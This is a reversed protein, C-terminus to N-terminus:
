IIDIKFQTFEYEVPHNSAVIIIKSTMVKEFCNKYWEEGQKDMNSLPEDLLLIPNESVLCLATKLRQLMGSSFYKVSKISQKQSFKSYDLFDQLNMKTKGLDAYLGFIENISFDMPLEMYPSSIAFINHMESLTNQNFLVKGEDAQVLGYVIQLLTSKGSGNKGTIAMSQGKQLSFSIDKFLWQHNYHKGINVVDLQM